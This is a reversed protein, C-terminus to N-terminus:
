PPTAQGPSNPLTLGAADLATLQDLARWAMTAQTRADPHGVEVVQRAVLDTLWAAVDTTLTVAQDM